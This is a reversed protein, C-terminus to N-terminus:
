HVGHAKLVGLWQKGTFQCGQASNLIEPAGHQQLADTLADVCFVFNMLNSLRHSLVRHSYLDVIAILYMFGSDFGIYTIDTVWVQNHREM